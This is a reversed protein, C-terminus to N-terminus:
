RAGGLPGYGIVQLALEVDLVVNGDDLDLAKVWAPDLRRAPVPIGAVLAECVEVRPALFVAGALRRDLLRDHLRVPDCEVALLANMRMPGNPRTGSV